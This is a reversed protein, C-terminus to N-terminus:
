QAPKKSFVDGIGSGLSAGMAGGAPGGYITGIAAGAVGLLQSGKSHKAAVPAASAASTQTSAASGPSTKTVPQPAIPNTLGQKVLTLIDGRRSNSLFMALLVLVLLANAVPRAKDIYGVFGLVGIALIWTFFNGEGTFDKAVQQGLQLHTDKAATVVLLLGIVILAFPM